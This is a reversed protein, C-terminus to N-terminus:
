CHQRPCLPSKSSCIEHLRGLPKKQCKRPVFNRSCSCFSRETKKILENGKMKEFESCLHCNITWQLESIEGRRILHQLRNNEYLRHKCNNNGTVKLVDGEETMDAYLFVDDQVAACLSRFYKSYSNGLDKAEFDDPFVLRLRETETAWTNGSSDVYAKPRIVVFHRGNEMLLKEGKDIAVPKQTFVRHTSPTIYMKSEPWDYKPLKRAKAEASLTLIRSNRTKAFGESTGPRLYAKDDISRMFSLERINDPISSGFFTTKINRVHARQYHTNENMQDETKPPKKTCFLAHGKHKASQISRENRPRSRNWATVASSIPAKGRKELDYNAINLLDRVKVRRNTFMVTEKRRGHYTAKSEIAKAMFEECAEDVKENAGAELRRRKVRNEELLKTATRKQMQQLRQQSYKTESLQLNCLMKKAKEASEIKDELEKLRDSTWTNRKKAHLDKMSVIEQALHKVKSDIRLNVMDKAALKANECEQVGNVIVKSASRVSNADLGLNELESNSRSSSLLVRACKRDWETDMSELIASTNSANLTLGKNEDVIDHSPRNHDLLLWRLLSETHHSGDPRIAVVHFHNPKFLVYVPLGHVPHLLHDRFELKGAPTDQSYSQHGDYTEFAEEFSIPSEVVVLLKLLELLGKYKDVKQQNPQKQHSYRQLKNVLFEMNASPGLEQLSKRLYGGESTEEIKSQKRIASRTPRTDTSSLSSGTKEKIPDNTCFARRKQVALVVSFTAVAGWFVNRGTDTSQWSHDDKYQSKEEYFWLSGSSTKAPQM